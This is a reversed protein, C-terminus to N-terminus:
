AHRRNIRDPLDDIKKELRDFQNDGSELRRDIQELIVRCVEQHSRDSKLFLDSTLKEISGTLAKMEGNYSSRIEEAIVKKAVRWVRWIGGLTALCVSIWGGIMGVSVEIMM